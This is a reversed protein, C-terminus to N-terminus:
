NANFEIRRRRIPRRGYCAGTHHQDRARDATQDEGGKGSLILHGGKALAHDLIEPEPPVRIAGHLRVDARDCAERPKMMGRRIAQSLLLEARIQEVQGRLSPDGARAEGDDQTPKPEEILLRELAAPCDEVGDARLALLFQRHHEAAVFDPAHDGRDPRRGIPHAQRRDVRAPETQHFAEVQMDAIDITPAREQVNM